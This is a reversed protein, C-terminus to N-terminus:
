KKRVILSIKSIFKEIKNLAIGGLVMFGKEGIIELSATLDKPRVATTVQMSGTAGSKFRLLANNTDQQLKNIQNTMVSNVKSIPGFIWRAVDIHHIAQQNTVGGLKGHVMGIMM